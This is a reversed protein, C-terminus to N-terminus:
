TSPLSFLFSIFDKRSAGTLYSLKPSRKKKEKEGLLGILFHATVLCSVVFRSTCFSSRCLYVLSAGCLVGPGAKGRTWWPIDVVMEGFLSQTIECLGAAEVKYYKLKACTLSGTKLLSKKGEPFLQM